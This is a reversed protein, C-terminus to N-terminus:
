THLRYHFLSLSSLEGLLVKSSFLDQLSLDFKEDYPGYFADTKADSASMVYIGSDAELGGEFMSGAVCADVYILMERFAQKMHM